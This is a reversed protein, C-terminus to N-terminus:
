RWRMIRRAIVFFVVSGLVGGVIVAVTMLLGAEPGPLHMGDGIGYAILTPDRVGDM